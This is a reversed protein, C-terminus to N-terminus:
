TGTSAITRYSPRAALTGSSQCQVRARIFNYKPGVETFPTEWHFERGIDGWFTEPDEISQKYMEDFQARSKVLSGEAYGEPAPYVEEEVAAGAEPSAPWSAPNVPAAAKSQDLQLGLGFKMFDEFSIGDSQGPLQGMFAQTEFDSSPHKLLLKLLQPVEAPTIKGEDNALSSFAQEIVEVEASTLMTELTGM